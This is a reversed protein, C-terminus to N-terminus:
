FSFTSLTSGLDSQVNQATQDQDASYVFAEKTTLMVSLALLFCTKTSIELSGNSCVESNQRGKASDANTFKCKSGESM